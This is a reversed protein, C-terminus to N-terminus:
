KDHSEMDVAFSRAHLIFILCAPFSSFTCSFTLFIVQVFTEFLLHLLRISPAAKLQRSEAGWCHQTERQKERVIGKPLLARLGLNLGEDKPSTM